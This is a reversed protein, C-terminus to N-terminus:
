DSGPMPVAIETSSGKLGLGQLRQQVDFYWERKRREFDRQIAQIKSSNLGEMKIEAEVRQRDASIRANYEDVIAKRSMALGKDDTDALRTMKTTPALAVVDKRLLEEPFVKEFRKVLKGQSDFLLVTPCFIVGHVTMVYSARDEFAINHRVFNIKDGYKTHLEALIPNIRDCLPCSCLYSFVVPQQSSPQKLKDIVPVPALKEKVVVAKVPSPTLVKLAAESFEAIKSGPALDLAVKYEKIAEANMKLKVLSGALYYHLNPNEFDRGKAERLYRVAEAYSGANFAAIGKNLLESCFAAPSLFLAVVGLSLSQRLLATSRPRDNQRIRFLLSLRMQRIM